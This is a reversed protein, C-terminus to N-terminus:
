LTLKSAEMYLSLDPLTDVTENQIHKSRSKGFPMRTISTFGARALMAGMSEEDYAMWRGCALLNNLKKGQTEAAGLDANLEDFYSLKNQRYMTVLKGADPVSVRLAGGPTLIRWCENLISAAIDPNLQDLLHHAVIASISNDQADLPKSLDYRVFKYGLQEAFKELPLKDVNVWGRHYMHLFSGLNVRVVGSNWTIWTAGKFVDVSDSVVQTTVGAEKLRGEWWPMPRYHCRTPQPDERGNELETTHLGSRSVRDMERFVAKLHAEPILDLVGASFCVDFSKDGVPWPTDIIDWTVLSDTARTLYCHHSIELGKVRIGGQELQKLVYGRAPGLELISEAKMQKLVEVAKWNSPFDLYHVYGGYQPSGGTFYRYDFAARREAATWTEPTTPDM